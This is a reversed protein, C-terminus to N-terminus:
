GLGVWGSGQWKAIYNVTADGASTFDGGAYLEDGSLALARVVGNVGSGL